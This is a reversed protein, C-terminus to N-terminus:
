RFRHHAIPDLAIESREAADLIGPASDPREGAHQAVQRIERQPGLAHEILELVDGRAAEGQVRVADGRDSARLRFAIAPGRGGQPQDRSQQDDDGDPSHSIVDPWSLGDVADVEASAADPLTSAARAPLRTRRTM